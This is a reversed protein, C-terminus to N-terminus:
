SDTGQLFLIRNNKIQTNGSFYNHPVNFNNNKDGGVAAIIIIALIVLIILVILCLVVKDTAYMKFMTVLQKKARGLSYDIEKIDRGIGDIKDNQDKLNRKIEQAIQLDNETKDIIFRIIREDEKLLNDGKQKLELVNMVNNNKGKLNSEDILLGGLHKKEQQIAKSQENLKSIELKLTQIHHTFIKETQESNILKLEHKMSKIEAEAYQIDTEIKKTLSVQESVELNCFKKLNSKVGEIIREIKSKGDKLIATHLDESM